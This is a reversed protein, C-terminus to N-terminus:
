HSARSSFVWFLFRVRTSLKPSQRTVVVSDPRYVAVSPNSGEGDQNVTLREVVPSRQWLEGHTSEFWRGAAVM